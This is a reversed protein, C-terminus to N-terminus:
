FLKFGLIFILGIRRIRRIKRTGIDAQIEGVLGIELSDTKSFSGMRPVQVDGSNL